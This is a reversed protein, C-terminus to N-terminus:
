MKRGYVLQALFYIVAGLVIVLILTVSVALNDALLRAAGYLAIVMLKITMRAARGRIAQEREDFIGYKEEWADRGLRRHFLVGAACVILFTIDDFVPQGMILQVAAIALTVAGMGLWFWGRYKYENM